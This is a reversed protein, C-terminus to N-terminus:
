RKEWGWAADGGAQDTARSDLTGRDYQDVSKDFAGSLWSVSWWLAFWLIVGGTIAVAWGIVRNRGQRRVRRARRDIQEGQNVLESYTMDEEMTEFMVGNAEAAEMADRVMELTVKGDGATVFVRKTLITEPLRPALERKLSDAVDCCGIPVTCRKAETCGRCLEGRRHYLVSWVGTENM